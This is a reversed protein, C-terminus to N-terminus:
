LHNQKLQRHVIMRANRFEIPRDITHIPIPTGGMGRITVTGYDLLRGLVSQDVLVSEIREMDVEFTQRAILGVKGIVRKNTVGMETSVYYLAARVQGVVGALFLVAAMGTSPLPYPVINSTAIVLSALIILTHPVFVVWHPRAIHVLNEEPELNNKIYSDL